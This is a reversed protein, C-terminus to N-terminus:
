RLGRRRDDWRAYVVYVLGLVVAGFLVWPASHVVTQLLPFAPEAQDVLTSVFSITSAGGALTAGQITRSQLLPKQESEIGGLLLAKSITSQSYPQQGNEFRIIAEIMAYMVDFRDLDLEQDADVAYGLKKTMWEAVWDIYSNTPNNYAPPAFETILERITKQNDRSFDKLLDMVIARIGWVPDTFRCYGDDDAPPSALGKWKIGFDM